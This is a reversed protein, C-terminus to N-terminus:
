RSVIVITEALCAMRSIPLVMWCSLELNIKCSSADSNCGSIERSVHPGMTLVAKRM